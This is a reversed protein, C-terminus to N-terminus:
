QGARRGTNKKMFEITQRIIEAAQPDSKQKQDFGHVGNEFNILTLPAHEEKALGVFHDISDNVYPTADKGAKVIFLPLDSRMLAVDKLEAAYAGFPALFSNIEKRLWNDPSIMLGYYFVAFKLYDREERMTFSVATPCNGSCAWLGIREPDMQLDVAHERIYAVLAEIDGPRETQYTVAILGAAATLRGWSIYQSMDKLPGQSIPSSDKFGMVFIVLPAKAEKAMAPPYFVDMTLSKGDKVLYAVHRVSVQDMGPLSYALTDSPLDSKAKNQTMAAMVPFFASFVILLDHLSKMTVEKCRLISGHKPPRHNWGEPM